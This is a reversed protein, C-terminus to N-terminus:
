VSDLYANWNYIKWNNGMEINKVCVGLVNFFWVDSKINMSSPPINKYNEFVDDINSEAITWM